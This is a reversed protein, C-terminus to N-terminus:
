WRNPSRLFEAWPVIEANPALQLEARRLFEDLEIDGAYPQDPDSFEAIVPDRSYDWTDSDPGPHEEVTGHGFRYRLYLYQGEATWADWQSPCAQCTEIVRALTTM